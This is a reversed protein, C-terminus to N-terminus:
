FPRVLHKSDRFRSVFLQPLFNFSFRNTFYLASFTCYYMSSVTYSNKKRGAICASWTGAKKDAALRPEMGTGASHPITKMCSSTAPSDFIMGGPRAVFQVCFLGPLPLQRVIAAETTRIISM